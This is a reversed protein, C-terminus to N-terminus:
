RRNQLRVPSRRKSEQRDERRGQRIGRLGLLGAALDAVVQSSRGAVEPVIARHIGAVGPCAAADRLVPHTDALASAVAQSAALLSNSLSGTNLSFVRFSLNWLITFVKQDLETTAPDLLALRPLPSATSAAERSARM